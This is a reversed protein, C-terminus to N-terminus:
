FKGPLLEALKLAKGTKKAESMKKFMERKEDESYKKEIVLHVLPRLIKEMAKELEISVKDLCDDIIKKCEDQFESSVLELIKEYTKKIIILDSTRGDKARNGLELVVDTLSTRKGEVVTLPASFVAIVKANKSITSIRQIIVPISIGDIGITSGGFKAIIVSDM